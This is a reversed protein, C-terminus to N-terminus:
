GVATDRRAGPLQARDAPRRRATEAFAQLGAHALMNVYGIWGNRDIWDWYDNGNDRASFILGGGRELMAELEKVARCAGPWVREAETRDGSLLLSDRLALLFAPLQDLATDNLYGPGVTGSPACYDALQRVERALVQHADFCDQGLAGRPVGFKLLESQM